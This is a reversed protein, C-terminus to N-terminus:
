QQEHKRVYIQTEWSARELRILVTSMDPRSDAERALCSFAVEAMQKSCIMMITFGIANAIVLMM